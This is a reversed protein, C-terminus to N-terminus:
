NLPSFSKLSHINTFLSKETRSQQKRVPDGNFDVFVRVKNLTYYMGVPNKSPSCTGNVDLNRRFYGSSFTLPNNAWILPSRGYNPEKIVQADQV